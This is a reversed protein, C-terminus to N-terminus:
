RLCRVQWIGDTTVRLEILCGNESMRIDSTSSIEEKGSGLVDTAQTSTDSAMDAPLRGNIEVWLM